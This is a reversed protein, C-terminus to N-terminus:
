EPFLVFFPLIYSSMIYRIEKSHHFLKVVYRIPFWRDELHFLREDFGRQVQYQNDHEQYLLWNYYRLCPPRLLEDNM